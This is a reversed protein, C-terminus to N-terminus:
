KPMVVAWLVKNAISEGIAPRVVIGLARAPNNSQYHNPKVGSVPIQRKTPLGGNLEPAPPQILVDISWIEFSEVEGVGGVSVVQVHYKPCFAEYFHQQKRIDVWQRCIANFPIMNPLSNEVWGLTFLLLLRDHHLQTPLRLQLHLIRFNKFYSDPNKSFLNLIIFNPIQLFLIFLITKRKYYERM